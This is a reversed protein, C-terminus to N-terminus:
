GERASAVNGLRAAAIVSIPAFFLAVVFMPRYSIWAALVGALVPLLGQPLSFMNIFSTYTPRRNPPSIDLVYSMRGTYMGSTAFGYFAFTLAFFAIRLNFATGIGWAEFPAVARSPVGGALLPVIISFAMLASGYVLLARSGKSHGVYAWVVNSVVSSFQMVTVFLGVYATGIGLNAIAYPVYFPTGMMSFAWLFQVICLTRYNPDTKLLGIGNTLYQGLPTLRKRVPEIPERLRGFVAISVATFVCTGM